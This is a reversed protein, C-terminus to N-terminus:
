CRTNDGRIEGLQMQRLWSLGEGAAQRFASSPVADAFMKRQVLEGAEILLLESRQQGRWVLYCERGCAAVAGCDSQNVFARFGQQSAERLFSLRAQEDAGLDGEDAVAFPWWMRSQENTVNM